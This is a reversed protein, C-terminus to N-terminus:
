TNNYNSNIEKNICLSLSVCIIIDIILIIPMFIELLINNASIFVIFTTIIRDLVLLIFCRLLRKCTLEVNIKEKSVITICLYFICILDIILAM